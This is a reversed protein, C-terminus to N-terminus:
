LDGLMIVSDRTIHAIAHSFYIEEQKGSLLGLIVQSNPKLAMIAPAHEDQIVFNGVLTELEVWDVDKTIKKFPTIIYFNM